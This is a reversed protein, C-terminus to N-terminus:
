VTIKERKGLFRPETGLVHVDLVAKVRAFYERICTKPSIKAAVKQANFGWAQLGKQRAIFVARSNHFPQSIVIFQKQGFVKDARVVSDFTRFGAFDLTVAHAPLGRAMLARRMAEPENYSRSHNDGSLLLHKVKGAKYLAAAADMRYKFFINTNGWANKASTGLVLGVDVDPLQSIEDHLLAATSKEVYTHSFFILLLGLLPSFLLFRFLKKKM